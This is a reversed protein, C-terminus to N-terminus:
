RCKKTRSGTSSYSMVIGNTDLLALKASNKVLGRVGRGKKAIRSAIMFTARHHEGGSHECPPTNFVITDSM